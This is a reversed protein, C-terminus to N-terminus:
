LVPLTNEEVMSLMCVLIYVAPFANAVGYIVYMYLMWAWIQVVAKTKEVFICSTFNKGLNVCSSFGKGCDYIIYMKLM